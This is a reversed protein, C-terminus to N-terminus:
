AGAQGTSRHSRVPPALPPLTSRLLVVRTEPSVRAVQGSLERGTIDCLCADSIVIEPRCRAAFRVADLGRFCTAVLYGQSELMTYLAGVTEESGVIL